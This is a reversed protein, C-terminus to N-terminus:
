IDVLHTMVSPFASRIDIEVADEWYGLQFAEIWLRGSASYAYDAVEYPMDAVTPLDMHNLQIEEYIAIPSTLKSPKFGIRALTAYIQDGLKDL